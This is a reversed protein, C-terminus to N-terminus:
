HKFLTVYFVCCVYFSADNRVVLILSSFLYFITLFVIEHLM